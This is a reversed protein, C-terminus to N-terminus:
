KKPSETSNTPSASSAASSAVHIVWPAIETEHVWQENPDPKALPRYTIPRDFGAQEFLQAYSEDPCFIDDIPRQDDVDKIITRVIDGPRATRNEPFGTTSFSVWDHVYLEPSSVVIVLIGGPVLREKLGALLQPKDEMPINDFTFWATVLDFAAPPLRRLGEIGPGILEYHGSPDLASAQTIMAESIDVGIATPFGHQQLFRTSRGAGCGFDLARTGKTHRALIGPLDQFALQYTGPYELRAYAAARQADAYANRFETTVRQRYPCM